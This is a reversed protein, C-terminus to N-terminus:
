RGCHVGHVGEVTGREGHEIENGDAFAAADALGQGDGQGRGPVGLGEAERAVPQRFVVVHLADGTRGGGDQDPVDGASGAAYADTRPPDHQGVMRGQDDGFGEAGQGLEVGAADVQAEAAGRAGVRRRHAGQAPVADLRFLIEGPIDGFQLLQQRGGLGALADDGHGAGPGVHREPEEAGAEKGRSQGGFAAQGVGEGGMEGRGQQELGQVEVAAAETGRRVQVPGVGDDAHRQDGRCRVRFCRKEGAAGLM